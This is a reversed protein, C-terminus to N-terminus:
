PLYYMSAYIFMRLAIIVPIMVFFHNRTKFLNIMSDIIIKAHELLLESISLGMVHNIGMRKFNTVRRIDKRLLESLSRFTDHYVYDDYFITKYGKQHLKKALNFDEGTDDETNFGGVEEIMRKRFISNGGGWFGRGKKAFDLMMKWSYWSFAKQVTTSDPPYINYVWLTSADPCSLLTQVARRLWDKDPIYIDSDWNAILEGSAHDIGLQRAAGLSGRFKFIKTAYEKAISITNDTSGGDIIIIEISPYKQTIISKLCKELTRESNLTPIIFSVKPLEFNEINNKALRFIIQSFNSSSTLILNDTKRLINM